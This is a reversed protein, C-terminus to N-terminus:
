CARNVRDLIDVACNRLVKERRHSEVKKWSSNFWGWLCQDKRKRHFTPSTLSDLYIRLFQVFILKVVRWREVDLIFGVMHRIKKEHCCKVGFLKKKSSWAAPWSVDGLQVSQKNGFSWWNSFSSNGVFSFSCASSALSQCVIKVMCSMMSSIALHRSHVDDCRIYM